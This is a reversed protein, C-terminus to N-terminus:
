CINLRVVMDMYRKKVDDQIVNEVVILLDLDSEGPNFCDMVFSGHLYVGVLNSCLISRNLDVFKVLLDKYAQM